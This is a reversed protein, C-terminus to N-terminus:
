YIDDYAILARKDKNPKSGSDNSAAITSWDNAKTTPTSPTPPPPSSERAPTGSVPESTTGTSSSGPSTAAKLLAPQKRALTVRLQAGNLQTGNMKDIARNAEDITEFTIFSCNRNYEVIVNLINGFATFATRLSQENLGIGHVYVTNGVNPIDRNIYHAKGDRKKERFTAERAFAEKEHPAVNAMGSSGRHGGIADSSVSGGDLDSDWKQVASFPQYKPKEAQEMKKRQLSISRKFGQKEKEPPKIAPIAGSKLLKKAVEKADQKSSGDM